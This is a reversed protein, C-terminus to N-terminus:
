VPEPLRCALEESLNSFRITLQFTLLWANATIVIRTKFINEKLAVVPSQHETPM